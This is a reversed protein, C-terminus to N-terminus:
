GFYKKEGSEFEAFEHEMGKRKGEPAAKASQYMAKLKEGIMHVIGVEPAKYGAEEKKEAIATIYEIRRMEEQRVYGQNDVRQNIQQLEVYFDRIPRMVADQFGRMYEASASRGETQMMPADSVADDLTTEKVRVLTKRPQEKARQEQQKGAFRHVRLMEREEGSTMVNGEGILQPIPIKEEFNKKTTIEAESSRMLTQAEEIEKKKKEAVEKLKKVREEPPLRKLREIDDTMGGASSSYNKFTHFFVIHMLSQQCIFFCVNFVFSVFVLLLLFSDSVM